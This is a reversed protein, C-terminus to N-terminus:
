VHARGIQRNLVFERALTARRVDLSTFDLYGFSVRKKMKFARDGTLFVLAAHTEIVQPPSGWPGGARLWAIVAEATAAQGLATTM